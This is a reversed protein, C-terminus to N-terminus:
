GEVNRLEIKHRQYIESNPSGIFEPGINFDDYGMRPPKVIEEWASKYAQSISEM